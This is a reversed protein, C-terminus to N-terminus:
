KFSIKIWTLILNIFPSIISALFLSILTVSIACIIRIIKQWVNRQQGIGLIKIVIDFKILPKLSFIIAYMFSISLPMFLFMNWTQRFEILSYLTLGCFGLLLIYRFLGLKLSMKKPFHSNVEHWILIMGIILVSSLMAALWKVSLTNIFATITAFVAL